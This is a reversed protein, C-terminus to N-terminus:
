EGPTNIAQSPNSYDIVKAIEEVVVARAVQIPLADIKQRQNNYNAYLTVTQPGSLRYTYQLAGHKFPLIDGNGLDLEYLIGETYDLMKFTFPQYVEPQLSTSLLRGKVEPKTDTATKEALIDAKAIASSPPEPLYISSKCETKSANQSHYQVIILGSLGCVFLFALLANEQHRNKTESYAPKYGYKM